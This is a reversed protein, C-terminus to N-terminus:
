CPSVHCTGGSCLGGCCATGTTTCATGDVLCSNKSACRFVNGSPLHSCYCVGSVCQANVTLNQPATCTATCGTVPCGAALHSAAAANSGVAASYILPAAFAAAGASALRVAAQRRSYAPPGVPGPDLLLCADLADVSRQVAERTLALRQAIEGVSLHGDCLEWVSAVDPTLCHATQTDRDYVILEDDVREFVVGETRAQPRDLM